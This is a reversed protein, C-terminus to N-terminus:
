RSQGIDRSRKPQFQAQRQREIEALRKVEAAQEAQKRQYDQEFKQREFAERAQLKAAEIQKYQQYQARFDLVGAAVAQRVEPTPQRDRKAKAAQLDGSLDLISSALQRSQRALEGAEKARILREEAERAQDKEQHRRKDSTQGTRREFGIAAPGLHRTPERQIGQQELTRHDIRADHGARALAANTFEAWRERAQGLDDKRKRGAQETDLKAGLGDIDVKRTTRLMHAHHNRNDGERHPAHIAVDVACGERNAIDQAFDLALQRREAQTLEAPLAVEFERAVCADKRKEAREAANWLQARNRAWDPAGDPLVLDASEVGGKRSYDHIEGTREDEIKEGARYAAAATASRGASRSIAKVSLHFIAM